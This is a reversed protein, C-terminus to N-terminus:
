QVERAQSGSGKKLSAKPSNESVTKLIEQENVFLSSPQRGEMSSRAKSVADQLSQQQIEISSTAAIMKFEEKMSKVVSGTITTDEDQAHSSVKSKSGAYKGEWNEEDLTPYSTRADSISEHKSSAQKQKISDLRSGRERGEQFWM